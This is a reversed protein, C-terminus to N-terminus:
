QTLYEAAQKENFVEVLHLSFIKREGKARLKSFRQQRSHSSSSQDSARTVGRLSTM